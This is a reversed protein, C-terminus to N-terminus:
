VLVINSPIYSLLGPTWWALRYLLLLGTWTAVHGSIMLFHGSCLSLDAGLAYAYLRGKRPHRVRCQVSLTCISATLGICIQHQGLGSWSFPVYVSVAIRSLASENQLPSAYARTNIASTYKCNESTNFRVEIHNLSNLTVTSSKHQQNKKNTQENKAWSRMREMWSFFFFLFFFSLVM